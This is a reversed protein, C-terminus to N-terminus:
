LTLKSPLDFGSSPKIRREGPFILWNASRRMVLLCQVVTIVSVAVGGDVEVKQQVHLRDWLPVFCFDDRSRAFDSHVVSTRSVVGKSRESALM